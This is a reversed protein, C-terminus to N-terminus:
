VVIFCRTGVMVLCLFFWYVKCSLIWFLVALMYEAVIMAFDLRSIITYM